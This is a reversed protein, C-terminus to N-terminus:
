ARSFSSLTRTTSCVYGPGANALAQHLEFKRTTSRLDAVAEYKPENANHDPIRRGGERLRRIRVFMPPM